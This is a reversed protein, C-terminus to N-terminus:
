FSKVVHKKILLIIGLILPIILQFPVHLYLPVVKLGIFLHQIINKSLTFAFIFTLATSVMILGNLKTKPFLDALIKIGGYMFISVKVFGGILNLLVALAEVHSLFDLINTLELARVFPFVYLNVTDASVLGLIMEGAILLLVGTTCVPIWGYKRLTKMDNVYPFIMTFVILEGYPFTLGTPFVSSMLQQWNTRLIPTLRSLEFYPSLYGFIFLFLIIIGTLVFLILSIRALAEIGLFCGYWVV